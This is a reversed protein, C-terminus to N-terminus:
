FGVEIFLYTGLTRDTTRGITTMGDARDIWFVGAGAGVGSEGHWAGTLDIEDAFRRDGTGADAEAMFRHVDLSVTVAGTVAFSSKLALDQLGRGGTHVPIDLFLDALGYFRHNTAFLTDFVRVTGDAGDDDGSLRDYMASLTLGDVVEVGAGASFLHASVDAGSREGFQLAGEVHLFASSARGLWRGGVTGQSTAAGRNWLAFVDLTGAPVPTAAWAGVLTADADHAPASADALQFAFVDLRAAGRPVSGRVGDFSRGQQTWDVAGILREAGYRAEQRGIRLTAATPRGLEIWAQHLDLRDASFDGLTSTEEGWMRVDQIQAFARVAPDIAAALGLRTRMSTSGDGDHDREVADRSEFRPRIQGSLEIEQGLAPCTGLLLIASAIGVVASRRHAM